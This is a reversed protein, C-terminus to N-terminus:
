WSLLAQESPHSTLLEVLGEVALNGVENSLINRAVLSLVGVIMHLKAQLKRCCLIIRLPCLDTYEALSLM